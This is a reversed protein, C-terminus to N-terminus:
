SPFCPDHATFMWKEGLSIPLFPQFFLTNSVDTGDVQDGQDLSFNERLTLSWLKTLPNELKRSIENLSMTAIDEGPEEALASRAFLTVPGMCLVAVLGFFM